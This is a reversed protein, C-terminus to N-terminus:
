DPFLKAAGQTERQLQKLADLVPHQIAGGRRQYLTHKLESLQRQEYATLGQRLKAALFDPLPQEPQRRELLHATVWTYIEAYEHSLPARLSATMLYACAEADGVQEIPRANVPLKM